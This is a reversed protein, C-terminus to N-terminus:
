QDEALRELRGLEVLSELDQADDPLFQRVTHRVEGLAEVDAAGLMRLLDALDQGRSAQLKMVVQYPLPLIPLGQPDRNTQARALAEPLWRDSREIVDVEVGDPSRWTSGGIGLDGVRIFGHAALQQQAAASDAQHILIDLDATAREPRYLRTAVAGCVAWSLDRLVNRLDPWRMRCTRSALLAASSGSGSPRHRRWALALFRQRREAASARAGAPRPAGPDTWADSAMSAM